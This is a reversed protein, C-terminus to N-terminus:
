ELVFSNRRMYQGLRRRRLANRIVTSPSYPKGLRRVRGNDAPPRVFPLAAGITDYPAALADGFPRTGTWPKDPGHFHFLRPAFRVGIEQYIPGYNYRPHMPDWKGRMVANLASQDHFRCREPHTAIYRLAEQAIAKWTEVRCSLIGANFYTTIDDIGLARAYATFEQGHESQPNICAAVSDVAAVLRGEPPVFDIMRGIDGLLQVDGDIYLMRSYHDSIDEAILLRGLTTPSVYSSFELKTEHNEMPSWYRVTIGQSRAYDVMRDMADSREVTVYMLLDAAEPSALTRKIQQAVVLTPLIYQEDAIMLILCKGAAGDNAGSITM